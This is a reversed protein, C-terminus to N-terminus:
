TAGAEARGEQRGTERVQDLILQISDRDTHGTNAFGRAALGAQMGPDDLIADVGAPTRLWEAVSVGAAFHFPDDATLIPIEIEKGRSNLAKMTANDLADALPDSAM